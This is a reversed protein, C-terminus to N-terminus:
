FWKVGSFSLLQGMQFVLDSLALRNWHTSKTYTWGICTSQSSPLSMWSLRWSCIHERHQGSTQFELAVLHAYCLISNGLYYVRYYFSSQQGIMSFLSDNEWAPRPSSMSCNWNLEQLEQRTIGTAICSCQDKLLDFGVFWSPRPKNACTLCTQKM